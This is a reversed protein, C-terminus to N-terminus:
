LGIHLLEKGENLINQLVFFFAHRPEPYLLCIIAISMLLISLITGMIKLIKATTDFLVEGTGKKQIIVTKEKRDEREKADYLTTVFAHLKQEEEEVKEEVAEVEERGNTQYYGNVIKELQDKQDGLPDTENIFNKIQRSVACMIIENKPSVTQVYLVPKAKNVRQISKICGILEDAEDFYQDIDYLIYSAKGLALIDNEQDHISMREEVYSIDEGKRDRIVAELGGLRLKKGVFIIM